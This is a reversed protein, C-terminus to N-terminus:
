LSNIGDLRFIYASGSNSGNDDDGEAGVIVYYGDVSVSTGFVDNDSGDRATLITQQEWLEGKRIFVYVSGCDRMGENDGNPMGVIAYDGCISVSNGFYGYSEKEGSTFDGRSAWNAGRREFIYAVGSGSKGVGWSEEPAGAIAYDGSISVPRILSDDIDGSPVALLSDRRWTADELKYVFVSNNGGDGEAGIIISDGDISVSQGFYGCQMIDLPILKDQQLNWSVGNRNYIYVSGMNNGQYYDYPSGVVAYDGCISVSSGFKEWADVDSGTLEAQQIWDIGERKFIYATGATNNVGEAGVIVYDGNISVSCGFYDYPESDLVILKAQQTWGIDERKYIYAAGRNENAGKAGVVAYDGSISVSGGFYDEARGDSAIIKTDGTIVSSEKGVLLKINPIYRSRYMKPSNTSSWNLPDEHRSNSRAYVSRYTDQMTTVCLGDESDDNNDYSFDVLINDTGNYEFPTEFEFKHWGTGYIRRRKQYVLTWGTADLMCDDYQSINTHKVRITWNKLTIDPAQAVDIALATITGSTGVEDALYIVQTRCDQYSTHLPYSWQSTGTGITVNECNNYGKFDIGWKNGSESGGDYSSGTNAERLEFDYGGKDASVTYTSCPELGKFAYIGKSNTVTTRTDGNTTKQATIFTSKIPQGKSDTIRGSVIEGKTDIFINYVCEVVTDYSGAEPCAINPLNYWCDDIGYWGINLHHYLTSSDYGYGDCIVAHARYNGQKNIIGLIVPLNADLNPNIIDMLNQNDINEGEDAGWIAQRYGFTNVLATSVDQMYAGSGSETYETNVSAGADHCIAGMAQRQVDTTNDGPVFPMDDWNYVGDPGNGSILWRETEESGVYITFKQSEITYDPYKYYRMLQAMTTAVCGCPYNGIHDEYFYISGFVLQPTYYNFCAHRKNNRDYYWTQGWKSRILPAVRQGSVLFSDGCVPSASMVEANDDSEQVLNILHNWKQQSRTLTSQEITATIGNTDEIAAARGSIDNVVLAGLPNGTSPNFAGDDAFGIIPEILNDASVIVFGSPKLYVIHYIANGNDNSFTEVNLVEQGLSVGLPQENIKLWGTVVLEADDATMPVAYLNNFLLLSLIIICIISQLKM